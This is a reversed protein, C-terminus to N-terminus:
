ESTIVRMFCLIMLKGADAETIAAIIASFHAQFFTLLKEENTLHVRSTSDLQKQTDYCTVNGYRRLKM